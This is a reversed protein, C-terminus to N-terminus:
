SKPNRITEQPLSEYWAPLFYCEQQQTWSYGYSILSFQHKSASSEWVKPHKKAKQHEGETNYSSFLYANSSWIELITKTGKERKKQYNMVDFDTSKTTAAKNQHGGSTYM